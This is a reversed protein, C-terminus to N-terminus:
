KSIAIQAAQNHKLIKGFSKVYELDGESIKDMLVDYKDTIVVKDNINFKKCMDHDLLKNSNIHNFVTQSGFLCALYAVVDSDYQDLKDLGNNKIHTILQEEM